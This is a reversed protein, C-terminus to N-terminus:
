YKASRGIQRSLKNMEYANNKAGKICTRVSFRSEVVRGVRAYCYDTWPDDVM